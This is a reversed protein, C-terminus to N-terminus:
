RLQCGFELQGATGPMSKEEGILSTSIHLSILLGSAITQTGTEVSEGIHGKCSVGQAAMTRGKEMAEHLVGAGGNV